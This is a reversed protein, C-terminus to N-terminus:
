LDSIREVGDNVGSDEEKEKEEQSELLKRISEAQALLKQGNFVNEVLKVDPHELLTNHYKILEEKNLVFKKEEINETTM